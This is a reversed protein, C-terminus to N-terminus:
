GGLTMMVIMWRSQLKVVQILVKKPQKERRKMTKSSGWSRMFEMKLYLTSCDKRKGDRRL